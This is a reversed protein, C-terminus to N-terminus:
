GSLQLGIRHTVIALNDFSFVEVAFFFLFFLVYFFGQGFMQNPFISCKYYSKLIM